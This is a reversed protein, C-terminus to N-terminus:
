TLDKLVINRSADIVVNISKLDTKLKETMKGIEIQCDNFAKANKYELLTSTKFLGKKNWIRSYCFRTCGKSKLLKFVKEGEDDWYKIHLLMEAESKFTFTNYSTLKADNELNVEWVYNFFDYKKIFM